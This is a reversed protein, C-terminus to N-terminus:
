KKYMINIDVNGNVGDIRGDSCLQWMLYKGKYTTEKTYHALWTLGPNSWIKTEDNWVRELYNKSGYLMPTYGKSKVETLFTYGVKNLEMISMKLGGFSSWNEWDFAIPLDIKTDGLQEKIWNVQSIAEDDTIAYSFYYVGVSLGANKAGEINKKFYPDVISEGGYGNQYGIRIMVFTAGANKVKNWDINGQWKSVDIGIETNDSKHNKYIDLFSTTTNSPNIKDVIKLTFDKETKNNSKDTAIYKLNYEGVKNMDYNGEVRCNPTKDYNDACFILSALTKENGSQLIYTNNLMVVPPTKDVIKYIVKTKLTKNENDKYEIEVTNTKLEKTDIDFDNVLSGDIKEILDSVKLKTGVEIELNSKFTINDDNIDKRTKEHKKLKNLILMVLVLVILLLAVSLIIFIIKKM